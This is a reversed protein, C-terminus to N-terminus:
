MREAIGPKRASVSGITSRSEVRKTRPFSWLFLSSVAIRAAPTPNPLIIAGMQATPARHQASEHQSFAEITGLETSRERSMM